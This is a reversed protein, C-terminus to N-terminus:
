RRRLAARAEGVLFGTLLVAADLLAVLLGTV